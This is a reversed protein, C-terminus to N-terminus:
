EANTNRFSEFGEDTKIQIYKNGEKDKVAEVIDSLNELYDKITLELSPHLLITQKLKRYPIENSIITFISDFGNNEDGPLQEVKEILKTMDLTEDIPKYKELVREVYITLNFEEYNRFYGVTSNRLITYDAPHKRKIPNFIKQNLATISFKTNHSDDYKQKLKLFDRWWYKSMPSTTDTVFIRGLNSNFDIECCCSKFIKRKYPLGERKKREALDFFDNPDIKILYILYSKEQKVIIQLLSGKQIETIQSMRAQTVIEVELLEQANIRASEDFSDGTMGLLAKLVKESCVGPKFEKKKKTKEIEGFLNDVYEKLDGDLVDEVMPLDRLIIKNSLYDIDYMSVGM